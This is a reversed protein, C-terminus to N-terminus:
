HNQPVLSLEESSPTGLYVFCVPFCELLVLPMARTYLVLMEVSYRPTYDMPDALLINNGVVTLVM